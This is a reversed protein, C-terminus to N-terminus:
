IETMSFLVTSTIFLEDDLHFIKFLVYMCACVYIILDM